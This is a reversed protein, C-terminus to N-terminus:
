FRHPGAQSVQVIDFEDSRVVRIQNSEPLVQALFNCFHFAPTALVLLRVFHRGSLGLGDRYGSVSTDTVHGDYRHAQAEFSWIATSSLFITNVLPLNLDSAQLLRQYIVTPISKSGVLNRIM